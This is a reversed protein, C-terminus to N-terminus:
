NHDKMWTLLLGKNNFFLSWTCNLVGTVFKNRFWDYFYNWKLFQNRSVLSFVSSMMGRCWLRFLHTLDSLLWNLRCFNSRFCTINGHFIFYCAVRWLVTVTGRSRLRSCFYRDYNHRWNSIRIIEVPQLQSNVNPDFTLRPENGYM